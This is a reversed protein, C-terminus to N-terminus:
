SDRQKRIAERVEVTTLVEDGNADLLEFLAQHKSPVEAKDLKGNNDRNLERLRNNPCM